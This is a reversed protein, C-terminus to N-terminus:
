RSPCREPRARKGPRSAQDKVASLLGCLFKFLLFCLHCLTDPSPKRSAPGEVFERKPTYVNLAERHASRAGVVV